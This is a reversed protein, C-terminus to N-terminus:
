RHLVVFPMDPTPLNRADILFDVFRPLPASVLSIAVRRAFSSLRDDTLRTTAPKARSPARDHPSYALHTRRSYVRRGVRGSLLRHAGRVHAHGSEDAERRTTREVLRDVDGAPVLEEIDITRRRAVAVQRAGHLAEKEDSPLGAKYHADSVSGLRTLLDLGLVGGTGLAHHLVAPILRGQADAPEVFTAPAVVDPNAALLGGRGLGEQREIDIDARAPSTDVADLPELAACEHPDVVAFVGVVDDDGINLVVGEAPSRRRRDHALVASGTRSEELHHLELDVRRQAVAALHKTAELQRREAAAVRRADNIILRPQDPDLVHPRGRRQGLVQRYGGGGGLQRATAVAGLHQGGLVEDPVVM